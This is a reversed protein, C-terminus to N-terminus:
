AHFDSNPKPGRPRRRRNAVAIVFELLNEAIRNPRSAGSKRASAASSCATAAGDFAPQNPQNKSVTLAPSRETEGREMCRTATSVSSLDAECVAPAKTGRAIARARDELTALSGPAPFVRRCLGTRALVAGRPNRCPSLRDKKPSPAAAQARYRAAHGGQGESHARIGRRRAPLPRLGHADQPPLIRANVLEPSLSNVRRTSAPRYRTAPKTRQRPSITM